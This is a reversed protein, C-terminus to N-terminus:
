YIGSRDRSYRTKQGPNYTKNNNWGSQTTGSTSGKQITQRYEDAYEKVEENTQEKGKYKYNVILLRDTGHYTMYTLIETRYQYVKDLTDVLENYIGLSRASDFIHSMSIMPEKIPLPVKSMDFLKRFNDTGRPESRILYSELNTTLIRGVKKIFPNNELLVTLADSAETHLVAQEQRIRENSVRLLAHRKHTIHDVILDLGKIELLPNNIMKTLLACACNLKMQVLEDTCNTSLETRLDQLPIDLEPNQKFAVTFYDRGADKPTYSKEYYLLTHKLKTILYKDFYEDIINQCYIEDNAM